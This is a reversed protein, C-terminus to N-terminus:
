NQTSNEMTRCLNSNKVMGEAHSAEIMRTSKKIIIMIESYVNVFGRTTYNTRGDRVDTKL